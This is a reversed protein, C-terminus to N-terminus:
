NFIFLNTKRFELNSISELVFLQVIGSPTDEMSLLANVLGEM